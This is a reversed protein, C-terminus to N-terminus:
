IGINYKSDGKGSFRTDIIVSESTKYDFGLIKTPIFESQVTLEKQVYFTQKLYKERNLCLILTVHSVRNDSFSLSRAHFKPSTNTVLRFHGLM